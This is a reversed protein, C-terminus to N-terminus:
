MSQFNYSIWHGHLCPLCVTSWRVNWYLLSFFRLSIRFVLTSLAPLQATLLRTSVLLFRFCNMIYMFEIARSFIFWELSCIYIFGLLLFTLNCYCTTNSVTISHASSKIFFILTVDSDFLFNNGSNSVICDLNLCFLLKRWDVKNNYKQISKHLM